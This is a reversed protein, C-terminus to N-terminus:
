FFLLVVAMAIVVTVFLWRVFLNGQRLALKSGYHGGLTMGLVLPVATVYDIQQNAGFIVVFTIIFAINTFKSTGVATLFDHKLLMVFSFIILISVGGGFMGAYFGVIFGLVITLPLSNRPIKERSKELGATPNLIIAAAVIIMCCSIFNELTHADLSLTFLAGALTGLVGCLTFVVGARYEIKSEKHYNSLAAIDRFLGALKGTGLAAHAPVGLFILTPFVILLSAGVIAGFTGAFLGLLFM